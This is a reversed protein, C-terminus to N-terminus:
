KSVREFDLLCFGSGQTIEVAPVFGNKHGGLHICLNKIPILPIEKGEKKQISGSLIGNGPQDQRLDLTLSVRDGQGVMWNYDNVQKGDEYVRGDRQFGWAGKQNTLYMGTSLKAGKSAVGFMMDMDASGIAEVTWTCVGSAIPNCKLLSWYEDSDEKLIALRSLTHTWVVPEHEFRKKEVSISDRNESALAQKEYAEFLQEPTALGSSKVVTALNFPNIGDLRILHVMNKAVPTREKPSSKVWSLLLSFLEYETTEMKADKLMAELAGQSLCAVANANGFFNASTRVKSWVFEALDETVSPGGQMSAELLAFPTASSAMFQSSLFNMVQEALGPLNFYNAAAALSVLTKMQSSVLYANNENDNDTAKRKKENLVQPNDTHIYEVVAQLISGEFEEISVKDGSAESFKGLLMAKFVSSRMALVYRNTPVEVGDCGVLKVDHADEDVLFRNLIEGLSVEESSATSTKPSM